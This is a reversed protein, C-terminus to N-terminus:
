QGIGGKGPNLINNPDLTKKIKRLVDMGEGLEREILHALKVGVGHCYEMTGGMDQALAMVEDAAERVSPSDIGKNTPPAEAIIMSFFEPRGWISWERVIISRSRLIEQCKRRYELVKSAPLSVHIYDLKHHSGSKRKRGQPSDMVEM